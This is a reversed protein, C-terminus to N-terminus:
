NGRDMWMKVNWLRKITWWRKTKNNGGLLATIMPRNLFDLDINKLDNVDVNTSIYNAVDFGKGSKRGMFKAYVQHCWLPYRLSMPSRACPIGYLDKNIKYIIKRTVKSNIREHLPLAFVESLVKSNLIPCVFNLHQKWLALYMIRRWVTLLLADNLNSSEFKRRYDGAIREHDKVLPLASNMVKKILSQKIEGNYWHYECTDMLETMLNGNFIVDYDLKDKLAYFLTMTHFHPNGDTIDLIRKINEKNTYASPDIGLYKHEFGVSKSVKKAIALEPNTTDYSYTLCTPNLGMEKMIAVLTRSDKGGSLMIAIKSKGVCEEHITDKFADIIQDHTTENKQEYKPLEINHKKGKTYTDSTLTKGMVLAQSIIEENYM